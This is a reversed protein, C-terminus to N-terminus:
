VELMGCAAGIDAGRSKRIFCKWGKKMLRDKFKLLVEESPKKSDEIENLEIINFLTKKPWSLNELAELDKDSDNLGKVITYSIMIYKKNNANKVYENAFYVIKDVSIGSPVIGKRKHDLPSHLSLALNFPVNLLSSINKLCSTSITIKNYSLKFEKHIIEGADLVQKLNLTPEGMGM